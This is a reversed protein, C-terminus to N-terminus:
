VIGSWTWCTILNEPGKKNKDPLPDPSGPELSPVMGRLPPRNVSIVFYYPKEASASDTLDKRAAVAYYSGLYLALRLCHKGSGAKPTTLGGTWLLTRCCHEGHYVARKIHQVLTPVEHQSYLGQSMM